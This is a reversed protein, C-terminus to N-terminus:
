EGIILKLDVLDDDIEILNQLFSMSRSAGLENKSFDDVRVYYGIYIKSNICNKSIWQVYQEFESLNTHNYINFDFMCKCKISCQINKNKNKNIFNNCNNFINIFQHKYIYKNQYDIYLIIRKLNPFMKLKNIINEIEQDTLISDVPIKIKIFEFTNAAFYKLNPIANILDVLNNFNLYKSIIQLIVPDKFTQIILNNM